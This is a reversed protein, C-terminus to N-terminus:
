QGVEEEEVPSCIVDDFGDMRDLLQELELHIRAARKRCNLCTDENDEETEFQAEDSVAELVAYYGYENILDLVTVYPEPRDDNTDMLQM